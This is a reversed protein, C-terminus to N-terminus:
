GAEEWRGQRIWGHSGCGGKDPSCLVSPSIDLPDLSNVVWCPRGEIQKFYVMGGCLEETGPKWHQEIIGVLDGRIESQAFFSGDNPWDDPKGYIFTYWHGSGIDVANMDPDPVAM